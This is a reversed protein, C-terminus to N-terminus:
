EREVKLRPFASIEYAASAVEIKGESAVIADLIRTYIKDKTGRRSKFDVVYRLTFTIWNEDFTMAVFPELRAKEIQYLDTMKKWSGEVKEAYGGVEENLIGLIIKRTLQHDSNTKVPITIEDWLFPFDGSYNYVPEKFVFSNAVRVMKGNYLDGNVWGGIEMITTRLLSIDIVDGKIGGLEVRDGIKYFGALHIALYGAFSGIVEQLAFAIGAGAVGLAVGLGGLNVRFVAMILLIAVFYSAFSITKRLQYKVPNNGAMRNSLRRLLRSFLFIAVLGILLYTAKQMVPDELFTKIQDLM